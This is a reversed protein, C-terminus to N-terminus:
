NVKENLMYAKLEQLTEIVADVSKPNDFMLMFYPDSEYVPKGYFPNSISDGVASNYKLQSFAVGSFGNGSICSIGVSGDGLTVSPINRKTEDGEYTIEQYGYM